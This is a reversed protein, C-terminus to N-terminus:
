TALFTTVHQVFTMVSELHINHGCSSIIELKAFKCISAMETNIKKFKEDYEGVLLLLPIKNYKLEAWLSPQRGISMSRLSKALLAPHNQLRRAMIQTFEPHRKISTFLPQEYWKLLFSSFDSTELERALKNDNELRKLREEQTKLGPSTSELVVKSFYQPFHLTLYLALRGGMSYGVLFCKKISLQELLNILAQATNQM